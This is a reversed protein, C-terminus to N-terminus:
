FEIQIDIYIHMYICICLYWTTFGGFRTCVLMVLTVVAHHMTMAWTM